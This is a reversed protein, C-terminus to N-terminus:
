DTRTPWGTTTPKWASPRGCGRASREREESVDLSPDGSCGGGVPMSGDLIRELVCEYVFADACDRSLEQTDYELDRKVILSEPSPAPALPGRAARTAQFREKGAEGAVTVPESEGEGVYGLGRM